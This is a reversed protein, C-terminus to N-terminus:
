AGAFRDCCTLAVYRLTTPRLMNHANPWRTAIHQWMNSTTPELNFITVNSGIFGLMDSCPLWVCAVHQAWCHQSRKGPAKYHVFTHHFFDMKEQVVELMRRTTKVIKADTRSLGNVSFLFNLIKHVSYTAIREFFDPKSCSIMVDLGNEEKDTNHVQANNNVLNRSSPTRRDKRITKATPRPRVIYM